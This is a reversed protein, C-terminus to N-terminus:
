SRSLEALDARVLTSLARLAIPLDSRHQDVPAFCSVHVRGDSLNKVTFRLGDRRAMTELLENNPVADLEVSSRVGTCM